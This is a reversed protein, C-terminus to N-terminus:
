QAAANTLPAPILIRLMHSAAARVGPDPDQLAANLPSLCANTGVDRAMLRIYLPIYARATQNTNTLAAAM